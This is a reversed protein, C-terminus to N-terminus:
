NDDYTLFEKQVLGICVSAFFRTDSLVSLEDHLSESWLAAHDTEIVVDAKAFPLAKRWEEEYMLEHLVPVQACGGTLIITEPFSKIGTMSLLATKLGTRWQKGAHYLADGVRDSEDESLTGLSYAEKKGKGNEKSVSCDTAVVRDFFSGALAFSRTQVIYGGLIVAIDTSEAGVDILMYNRYSENCLKAQAYLATTITTHKLKNQKLAKEIYSFVAKQAYSCFVSVQISNGTKGLPDDCEVDSVKISTVVLDLSTFESEDAFLVSWRNKLQEYASKELLSYVRTMEQETIEVSADERTFKGILIFGIISPGSVGVIVRNTKKRAQTECEEVARSVAEALTKADEVSKVSVGKATIKKANKEAVTLYIAKVSSPSIDLAIVDSTEAGKKQFLQPIPKM